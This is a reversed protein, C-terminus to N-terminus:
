VDHTPIFLRNRGDFYEVKMFVPNLFGLPQGGVVKQNLDSVAM